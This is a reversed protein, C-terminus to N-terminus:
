VSSCAHRCSATTIACWRTRMREQRTCLRQCGKCNCGECWGAILDIAIVIAHLLEEEDQALLIHFCASLWATAGLLMVSLLGAHKCADGSPAAGEQEKCISSVTGATSGIMCMSSAVVAGAATNSSSHQLMYCARGLLMTLMCMARSPNVIHKTWNCTPGVNRHQHSLSLAPQMSACVLCRCATMSCCDGHMADAHPISREDCRCMCMWLTGVYAAAPM